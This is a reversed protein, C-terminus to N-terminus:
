ESDGLSRVLRRVADTSVHLEHSATPRGRPGLGVSSRPASDPEPSPESVASGVHIELAGTHKVLAPANELTIAGATVVTIRDPARAALARLKDRGDWASPAGASTLVRDVGVDLLADFAEDVNPTLDFARHFTVEMPRALEVLRRTRDVDVHGDALLVGLAVAQCGAKKAFAIGRELARYELGSYCFDGPRPRLLAVVGGADSGFEQRRAEITSEIVDPGSTVGGSALDSCMEVRGAGGRFARLASEPDSLCVEVLTTTANV